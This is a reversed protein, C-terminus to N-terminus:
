QSLFGNSESTPDEEGVAVYHKLAQWSSYIDLQDSSSLRQSPEILQDEHYDYITYSHDLDEDLNDSVIMGNMVQRYEQVENDAKGRTDEMIDDYGDCLQKQWLARITPEAMLFRRMVNPAHQFDGISDLKRITDEQWLSRVKRLAGDALQLARNRALSKQLLMMKTFFALSDPLMDKTFDKMQSNVDDENLYAKTGYILIDATELDGDVFNTM